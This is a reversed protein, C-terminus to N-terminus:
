KRPLRLTVPLNEFHSPTQLPFPFPYSSDNQSPLSSLLPLSGPVPSSLSQSVSTVGTTSISICPGPGLLPFQPLLHSSLWPQLTSLVELRFGM